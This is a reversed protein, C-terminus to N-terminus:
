RRRSMRMTTSLGPRQITNLTELFAVVDATEADGLKLPKLIKEGDAHLRDENLESYHRVVDALTAHSGAHMYPATRAVNRLGPVKFEGWHRHELALHQTTVANAQTKDDNHRGLLNFPSEQVLRIGAHRGSDVRGPAAFFPIGVDAFEGNSFLPGFHCMACNGRGVFIKLGRQAAAPYRTMGQRDGRLLADRFDDFRSRDTVITEQFAALAKALNVMVTENDAPKGFIRRYRTALDPNSHVREALLAPTMAMERPDTLPRIAHSWLSDAGGDRGFWRQFRTNAISPANRDLLERGFSRPQGDAWARGPMHCSVCALNHDLSLRPEFFLTRGFAIAAPKGSYRNGIDRKLPPPWPGHRAIAQKEAASFDVQAAALATLCAFAAGLTARAIV